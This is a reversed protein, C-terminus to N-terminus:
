KLEELRKEIHAKRDNFVVRISIPHMGNELQLIVDDLMSKYGLKMAETDLYDDQKKKM